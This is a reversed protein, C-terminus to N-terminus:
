SIHHSWASHTPVWYKCIYSFLLCFNTNTKLWRWSTDRSHVLKLSNWSGVWKQKFMNFAGCVSQVPIPIKYKSGCWTRRFEYNLSTGSIYYRARFEFVWLRQIVIGKCNKIIEASVSGIRCMTLNTWFSLMRRHLNFKQRHLKQLIAKYYTRTM